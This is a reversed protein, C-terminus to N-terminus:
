MVSCSAANERTGGSHAFVDDVETQSQELVPESSKPESRSSIQKTLATILSEQNVTESCESLKRLAAEVRAEAKAELEDHTPLDSSFATKTFIAGMAEISGFQGRALIDRTASDNVPTPLVFSRSPRANSVKVAKQKMAQILAVWAQATADKVEGRWASIETEITFEYPSVFSVSLGVSAQSPSAPILNNQPSEARPFTPSALEHPIPLASPASLLPIECVTRFSKAELVILRPLDTVVLIRNKGFFRRKLVPGCMLIHEDSACIRQLYNNLAVGTRPTGAAEFTLAEALSGGATEPGRAEPTLEDTEMAQRAMLSEVIVSPKSAFHKNSAWSKVQSPPTVTVTDGGGLGSCARKPSEAGTADEVYPQLHSMSRSRGKQLNVLGLLAPSSDAKKFPESPSRHLSESESSSEDTSYRRSDLEASVPATTSCRVLIPSSPALGGFGFQSGFEEDDSTRVLEEQEEEDTSSDNLFLNADESTMRIRRKRLRLVGALPPEQDELAELDLGAFFAHKKLDSIQFFGLRDQPELTLLARVFDQGVQPVNDPFSYETALIKQFTIYESNSKFPPHGTLMQFVVCGLAWLDSGFGAVASDHLMEPSVYQATGVFTNMRETKSKSSGTANMVVKSTDFDGLKLHGTGTIFLNEPKIDRHAVGLKRLYTLINVIEGAYFQALSLPLRGKRAILEALEGNPCLELALYLWTSDQFTFFLKVIGPHDMKSLMDKENVIQSM